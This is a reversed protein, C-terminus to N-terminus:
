CMTQLRSIIEGITEPYRTFLEGYHICPESGSPTLSSKPLGKGKYFSAVDGLRKVEWEGSFGPLRTQGTLLQQMTAQKINRKKAILTDLKALLTDIDSLAAAIAHQESIPPFVANIKRVGTLSMGAKAGRDTAARFLSQSSEGALFYSLFKGNVKFPDSRVLAIHQNIFAPKPVTDDIFGIIGIDATISILLDGNQLQTRMGEKDDPPLDVLKLNSLDLYISDRSMNTIRLFAHGRDSYHEAWGRSGSTVFPNLEALEGFGWDEPIMGVETLKYGARLAESM